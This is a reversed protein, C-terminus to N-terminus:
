HSIIQKVVTLLVTAFNYRTLTTDQSMVGFVHFELGLKPIDLVVQVNMRCEVIGFELGFLLSTMTNFDIENAARVDAPYFM